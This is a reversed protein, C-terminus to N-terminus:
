RSGGSLGRVSAFGPTLEFGAVQTGSRDFTCAFMSVSVVNGHGAEDAVVNASGQASYAGNEVIRRSDRIELKRGANRGASAQWARKVREICATEQPTYSALTGGRYDQNVQVIRSQEDRDRQLEAKLEAQRARLKGLSQRFTTFNQALSGTPDVGATLRTCTTAAQELATFDAAQYALIQRGFLVDRPRLIGLGPAEYLAWDSMQRCTFTLGTPTKRPDDLVRDAAFPDPATKPLARGVTPDADISRTHRSMALNAISQRLQAVAALCFATAPPPSGTAAARKCDTEAADLDRPGGLGLLKILGLRHLAEGHGAAAAKGCTLMAAAPDFVRAAFANECTTGVTAAPRSPAASPPPLTEQVAREKERDAAALCFGAPVTPDRPAAAACLAQTQDLNRTVGVGVLYLLGMRYLSWPDNAAAARRCWDTIRDPEFKGQRADFYLGCLQAPAERDGSIYLKEWAAIAQPWDGRWMADRAASVEPAPTATVAQTAFLLAAALAFPLAVRPRWRKSRPDGPAPMRWRM